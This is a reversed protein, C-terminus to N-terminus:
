PAAGDLTQADTLKQRVLETVNELSRFTFRVDDDVFDVVVGFADEVAAVCEVVTVSDYTLDEVDALTVDAGVAGLDADLVGELCERVRAALEPASM